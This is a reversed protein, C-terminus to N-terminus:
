SSLASMARIRLDRLKMVTHATHSHERLCDRIRFEYGIIKEFKELQTDTM